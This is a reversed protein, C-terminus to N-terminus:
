LKTSNLIRMKINKEIYYAFGMEKHFDSENMKRVTEEPTCAIVTLLLLLLIFSKIKM